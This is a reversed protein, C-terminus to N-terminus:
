EVLEKKALIYEENSPVSHHWKIGNEMFSVGKGKITNAIVMIPKNTKNDISEKFTKEIENFNHGDINKCLWGFSSIKDELSGVEDSYEVVDTVGLRNYDIIGILNNLKYQSAFLFSEWISGESCEGDGILAFVKYSKKDMKNALAIGSAIGMAHGLSGSNYEAGPTNINLQGSLYSGNECYTKIDERFIGLNEWINYLALCAHGKGVVFRDRDEYSVTDVYHRLGYDGYYLYVFIDIASYTGGIHGKKSRYIDELVKLRLDRAIKILQKENM